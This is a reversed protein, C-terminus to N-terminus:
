EPLVKTGYFNARGPVRVEDERDDRHWTRLGRSEGYKYYLWDFEGNNTVQPIVPMTSM